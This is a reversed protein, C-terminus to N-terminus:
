AKILTCSNPLNTPQNIQKIQAELKKIKEFWKHGELKIELIQANVPMKIEDNDQNSSNSSSDSLM